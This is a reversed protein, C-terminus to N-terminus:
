GEGRARQRALMSDTNSVYLLDAIKRVFQDEYVDLKEDAFAIRWLSEVLAIRQEQSLVAKITSVPEFYSTLRQAGAEDLLSQAEREDLAFLRVLATVATRAEEPKKELDVRMMEHLLSAVALQLQRAQPISQKADGGALESFLTKLADLM